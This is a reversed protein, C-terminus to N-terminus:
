HDLKNPSTYLNAGEFELIMYLNTGVPAGPPYTIPGQFNTRMNFSSPFRMMQGDNWTDNNEFGSTGLQATPSIINIPFMLSTYDYIPSANDTADISYTWTPALERICFGVLGLDADAAVQDVAWTVLRWRKIFYNQM